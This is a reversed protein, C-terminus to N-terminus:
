DGPLASAFAELDRSGARYAALRRADRAIRDWGVKATELMARDEADRM